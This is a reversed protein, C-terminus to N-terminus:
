SLVGEIDATAPAATAPAATAPAASRPQGVPGAPRRNLVVYAFGALVGGAIEALLYVPLQGWHV